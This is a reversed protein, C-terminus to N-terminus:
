LLWGIVTSATDAIKCVRRYEGQLKSIREKIAREKLWSRYVTSGPASCAKSIEGRLMDLEQDIEVAWEIETYGARGAYGPRLLFSLDVLADLCRVRSGVPGPFERWYEPNMGAPEPLTECWFSSERKAALVARKVPGLRLDVAFGAMEKEVRKLERRIADAFATARGSAHVLRLESRRESSQTNGVASHALALHKNVMKSGGKKSRARSNRKSGERRGPVRRKVQAGNEGLRM